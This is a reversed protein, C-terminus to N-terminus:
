NITDSIPIKVKQGNTGTIISNVDVAESHLKQPNHTLIIGDGVSYIVYAPGSDNAESIYFAYM